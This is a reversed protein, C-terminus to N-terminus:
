RVYDQRAQGFTTGKLASWAEWKARIVFDNADPLNGAVDVVHCM